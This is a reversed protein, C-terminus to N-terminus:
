EKVEEELNRVCYVHHRTRLFMGDETIAPTALISEGFDNDALEEFEPDDKLVIVHGNEGCFFIKGDALV